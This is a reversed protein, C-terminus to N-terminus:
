RIGFRLQCVAALLVAAKVNGVDCYGQPTSCRWEREAVAIEGCCVPKM